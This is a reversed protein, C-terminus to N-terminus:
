KGAGRTHAKGHVFQNALARLVLNDVDAFGRLLPLKNLEQPHIEVKAGINSFELRDDGATYTLRRNVRYVGSVEVWPLIRLLWRPTIEEMQPQSKTTTTLQRAALTALSLQQKEEEGGPKVPNTM